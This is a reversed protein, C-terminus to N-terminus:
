LEFGMGNIFRDMFYKNTGLEVVKMRTVIQRAEAQGEASQLIQGAGNGAANGIAKTRAATGPPILGIRQASAPRMYSGFGGCLVVADLEDRTIGCEHMLTDMGARIASKALQLQRIDKQNIYVPTGPIDARGNYEKLFAGKEDLMGADLLAAVADILGSGCLKTAPAGGITTYRFGGNEYDVSDIAGESANGGCTIGAGEFTPGAATSCCTLGADTRLAMEGNTGADILLVNGQTLRHIGSALISCTIDSGVYAAVSGPVYIPANEFGKLTFDCVSDFHTSMPFPVEALPKPPIGSFIYMMITNGTIVAYNVEAADVGASRCMKKLIDSLQKRVLDRLTDVGNNNCYVVRTLVDAGYPQQANMEGEAALPRKSGPQFLQGAVTTTGIDFAAGYGAPYLPALSGEWPTYATEIVAETANPLTVTCDGEIEACCALRFGSPQGELFGPESDTPSSLVGTAHVLCKGCRRQGGCPMSIQIGATHIASLLTDGKPAQVKVVSGDRNITIEPM